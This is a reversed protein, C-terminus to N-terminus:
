FLGIDLKQLMILVTSNNIYTNISINKVLNIILFIYKENIDLLTIINHVTLDSNQISKILFSLERINFDLLEFVM